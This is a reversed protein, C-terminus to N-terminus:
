NGPTATSQAAGIPLVNSILWSEGENAPPEFSAVFTGQTDKFTITHSMDNQAVIQYYRGELQMGFAISNNFAADDTALARAEETERLVLRETFEVLTAYASPEAAAWVWHRRDQYSQPNPEPVYGEETRRWLLKFTRQLAGEAGPDFAFSTEETLGTVVLHELNDAVQLTAHANNFWWVPEDDGRWMIEWGGVVREALVFHVRPLADNGITVYSVGVEDTGWTVRMANLGLNWASLELMPGADNRRLDYLQLGM